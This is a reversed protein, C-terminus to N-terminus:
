DDLEDNNLADPDNAPIRYAEDFWRTLDLDACHKSCFPKYSSDIRKGCIPCKRLKISVLDAM